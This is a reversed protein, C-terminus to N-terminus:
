RRRYYEEPCGCVCGGLMDLKLQGPLEEKGLFEELNTISWSERYRDNYVDFMYPFDPNRSNGLLTHSYRITDAGSIQTITSDTIIMTKSCRCEEPSSTTGWNSGSWTWEWTGVINQRIRQLIERDLSDQMEKWTDNPPTLPLRALERFIHRARYISDNGIMRLAVAEKEAPNKSRWEQSIFKQASMTNGLLLCLVSFGIIYGKRRM